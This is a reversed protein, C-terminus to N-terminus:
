GRKTDSMISRRQRRDLEKLYILRIKESQNLKKQLKRNEKQLKDVQASLHELLTPRVPDQGRVVAM